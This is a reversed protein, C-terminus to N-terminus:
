AYKHYAGSSRSTQFLANLAGGTGGVHLDASPAMWFYQNKSTWRTSIRLREVANTPLHLSNVM